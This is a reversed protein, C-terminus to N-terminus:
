AIGLELKARMSIMSRNWPPDFVLEVNVANIEELAGVRAKIEDVIFTGMACAPTTLTMRIFADYPKTQESPKVEVGYIFGLDVVNVPIEPDYCLKLAEWIKDCLSVRHIADRSVRTKKTKPQM